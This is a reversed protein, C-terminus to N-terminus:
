IVMAILLGALLLAFVIDFQKGRVALVGIYREPVVLRLVAALLAAAALSAAGRRWRDAAILLLGVALLAAVAAFPLWRLLPPRARTRDPM